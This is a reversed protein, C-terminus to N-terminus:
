DHTGEKYAETRVPRFRYTLVEPGGEEGGPVPVGVLEVEMGTRAAEPSVESLQALVRVGEPLDVYALVYPTPFEPTSQHVVTYTYVTGRRSLRVAQMHESSLCRVCLVHAPFFTTGCSECRSGLLTIGGDADKELLGPRLPVWGPAQINVSMVVGM